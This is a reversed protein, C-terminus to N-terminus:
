KKSFYFVIQILFSSLQTMLFKSKQYLIYKAIAIFSYRIIRYIKLFIIEKFVQWTESESNKQVDIIPFGIQSIPHFLANMVELVKLGFNKTKLVLLNLKLIM